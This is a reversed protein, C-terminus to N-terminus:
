RRQLATEAAALVNAAGPVPADHAARRLAEAAAALAQRAGSREKAVAALSGLVQRVAARGRLGENAPLRQALLADVEAGRALFREADPGQLDASLAALTWSSVADLLDIREPQDRLMSEVRDLADRLLPIAELPRGSQAAQLGFDGLARVLLLNSEQAEPHREVLTAALSRAEERDRAADAADGLLMSIRAHQLLADTLCQLALSGTGAKFWERAAVISRASADRAAGLDGAGVRAQAELADVNYGLAPHMERPSRGALARVEDLTRLARASGGLMLEVRALSLLVGALMEVRGRMAEEEAAWAECTARVEEIRARAEEVRGLAVEATLALLAALVEQRPLDPRQPFRQALSRFLSRAEAAAVRAGDIQGSGLRYGALIVLRNALAYAATFDGARREFRARAEDVEHVLEGAERADLVGAAASLASLMPGISLAESAQTTTEPLTLSVTRVSWLDPAQRAFLRELRPPLCLVVQGLFARMIGNRHENMRQFCWVWADDDHATSGTGDVVFVRSAPAGTQLAELITQELADRTLPTLPSARTVAPDVRDVECPGVRRASVERAILAVLEAVIAPARCSVLHLDFREGWALAEVLEAVGPDRALEERWAGLAAQASNM